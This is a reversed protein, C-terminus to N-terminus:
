SMLAFILYIPFILWIIPTLLSTVCLLFILSFIDKKHLSYVSLGHLWLMIFLLFTISAMYTGSIESDVSFHIYPDLDANILDSANKM